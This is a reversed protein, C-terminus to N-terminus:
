DTILGYQSRLAFPSFRFKACQTACCASATSVITINSPKKGGCCHCAASCPNREVGGGATIEVKIRDPDEFFVAYSEDGGAHPHRDEYLITTNKARLEITIEDVFDRSSGRFALHNLGTRCRHYAPEQFREETQVFVIYCDELIYSIGDDWQQHVHYGLRGLLWGWFDTSKALDRVYIEVHHLKGKM